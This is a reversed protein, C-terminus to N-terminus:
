TEFEQTPPSNYNRYTIDRNRLPRDKERGRGKERRKRAGALIQAFLSAPQASGPQRATIFRSRSLDFRPQNNLVVVIFVQM